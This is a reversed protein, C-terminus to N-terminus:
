LGPVRDRPRLVRHRDIGAARAADAARALLDLVAVGMRSAWVPLKEALDSQAHTSLGLHRDRDGRARHPQDPWLPRLWLRLLADHLRHFPDSLELSM